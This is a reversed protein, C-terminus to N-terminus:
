THTSSALIDALSAVVVTGGNTNKIRFLCIDRPYDDSINIAFRGTDPASPDSRGLTEVNGGSDKEEPWRWGQQTRDPTLENVCGLSCKQSVVPSVAVIFDKLNQYPTIELLTLNAEPLDPLMVDKPRTTPEKRYLARGHALLARRYIDVGSLSAEIPKILHPPVHCFLGDKEKVLVTARQEWRTVEMLDSYCTSLDDAFPNDGGGLLTSAPRIFYRTSEASDTDLDLSEILKVLDSKVDQWPAATYLRSLDSTGPLGFGSLSYQVRHDQQLRSMVSDVGADVKGDSAVASWSGSLHGYVHKFEAASMDSVFVSLNIASARDDAYVYHTGYTKVFDPLLLSKADPKLSTSALERSGRNVLLQLAFAAGSSAYSTSEQSQFDLSASAEGAGFFARAELHVGFSLTNQLQTTNDIEIVTAQLSVGSSGSMPQLLTSAFPTERSNGSDFDYGSGVEFRVVDSRMIVTTGDQTAM